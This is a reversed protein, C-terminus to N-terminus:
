SPRVRKRGLGIKRGQRRRIKAGKIGRTDAGVSRTTSMGGRETKLPRKRGAKTAKRGLMVGVQAALEEARQAFAIRRRKTSNRARSLRGTPGSTKATRAMTVVVEADGTVEPKGDAGHGIGRGRM